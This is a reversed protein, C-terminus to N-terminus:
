SATATVLKNSISRAHFIATELRRILLQVELMAAPTPVGEWLGDALPGIWDKGLYRLHPEVDESRGLIVGDSTSAEKFLRRLADSDVASGSTKALEAVTNTRWDRFIKTPPAVNDNGTEPGHSTHCHTNEKSSRRRKRTTRPTQQATATCSVAPAPKTWQSTGTSENYWFHLRYHKDFHKTWKATSKLGLDDDSKGSSQEPQAAARGGDPGKDVPSLVRAAAKVPSTTPTSVNKTSTNTPNVLPQDPKVPTPAGEVPSSAKTAAKLPSPNMVLNSPRRLLPPPCGAGALSSTPQPQPLADPEDNAHSVRVTRGHAPAPVSRALMAAADLGRSRVAYSSFCSNHLKTLKAHLEQYNPKDAFRLGKLHMAISMTCAKAQEYLDNESSSVSFSEDDVDHSSSSANAEASSESRSTIEFFHAPDEFCQRKVTAVAAKDGQVKADQWPLKGTLMGVYVFLLSWLDDVRGLDSNDHARVSAYMSTGRFEASSREEVHKGDPQVVRRALGFDIIFAKRFATQDHAPGLVFNSLKVDRHVFGCRHVAHICRLMHLAIATADRVCFTHRPRLRRRVASLSESMRQMVLANDRQLHQFLVPSCGHPEIERLCTAERQLVSAAGGTDLKVAAVLPQGGDTQSADDASVRTAEYIESFTGRGFARLIKWERGVVQGPHFSM